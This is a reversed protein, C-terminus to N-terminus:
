EGEEFLDDITIEENEKNDDDKIEEEKMEIKKSDDDNTVRMFLNYNKEKLSEIEKKLNEIEETKDSGVLLEYNERLTQLRDTVIEVKDLNSAIDTLITEFEEKTM